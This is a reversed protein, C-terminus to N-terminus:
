RPQGFCQGVREYIPAPGEFTLYSSSCFMHAETLADMNPSSVAQAGLPELCIDADDFALIIPSKLAVYFRRALIIGFSRDGSERSAPLGTLIPSSRNVCFCALLAAALRFSLLSLFGWSGVQPGLRCFSLWHKAEGSYAFPAAGSSSRRESFSVTRGASYFSCRTPISPIASASIALM